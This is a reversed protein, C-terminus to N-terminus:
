LIARKFRFLSLSIKNPRAQHLSESLSLNITWVSLRSLRIPSGDPSDPEALPAAHHGNQRPSCSSTAGRRIEHLSNGNGHGRGAM